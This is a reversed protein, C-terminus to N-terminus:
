NSASAPDKALNAVRSSRAGMLQVLRRSINLGLGSGSAQGAGPVGVQSFPKFLKDMDEAGIGIGTDIVDLDLRLSHGERRTRAQLIVGGRETFKIANSLLNFLVQKFHLPDLLVWAQLDGEVKVDLTLGKQRAMGTVVSAVGEIQQNILVPEPFSDIKGSEIRAIDLVNGLLSLLGQAAEQAM